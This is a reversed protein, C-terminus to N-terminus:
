FKRFWQLLRTKKKNIKLMRFLSNRLLMISQIQFFFRTEIKKGNLIDGSLRAINFNHILLVVKVYSPTRGETLECLKWGVRTSTINFGSGLQIKTLTIYVTCVTILSIFHELCEHHFRVRRTITNRGFIRSYFIRFEGQRSLVYANRKGCFFIKTRLCVCCYLYLCLLAIFVSGCFTIGVGFDIGPRLFLRRLVYFIIKMWVSVTWIIIGLILYFYCYILLMLMFRRPICIPRWREIVYTCFGSWKCNGVEARLVSKIVKQHFKGRNKRVCNQMCLPNPTMVVLRFQVYMPM